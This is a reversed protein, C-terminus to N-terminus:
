MLESLAYGGDSTRRIRGDRALKWLDNSIRISLNTKGPKIPAAKLLDVMASRQVGPHAGIVQLLCARLGNKTWRGPRSLPEGNVPVVQLRSRPSRAELLLQRLIETQRQHYALERNLERITTRSLTM